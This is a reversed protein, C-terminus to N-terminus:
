HRRDHGTDPSPSSTGGPDDSDDPDADPHGNLHCIWAQSLKMRKLRVSGNMRRTLDRFRFPRQSNWDDPKAKTPESAAAVEAVM